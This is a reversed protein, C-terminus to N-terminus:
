RGAYAGDLAVIAMLVRGGFLGHKGKVVLVM